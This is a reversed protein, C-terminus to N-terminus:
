EAHENQREWEEKVGVHSVHAPHVSLVRGKVGDPFKLFVVDEEVTVERGCFGCTEPM